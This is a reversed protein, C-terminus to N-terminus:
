AISVDVFSISSDECFKPDVVVDETILEGTSPDYTYEGTSPDLVPFPELMDTSLLDKLKNHAIGLVDVGDVERDYSFEIRRTVKDLRIINGQPNSEYAAKSSYAQSEVALPSGEPGYSVTLRIYLQSLNIDGMVAVEKNILLAM